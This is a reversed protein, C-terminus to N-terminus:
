FAAVCVRRRGIVVEIFFLLLSLFSLCAKTMRRLMTVPLFTLFIIFNEHIPLASRM